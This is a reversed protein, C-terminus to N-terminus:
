FIKLNKKFSVHQNLLDMPDIKFTIKENAYMVFYTQRYQSKDYNMFVCSQILIKEHMQSIFHTGM